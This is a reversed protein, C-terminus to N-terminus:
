VEDITVDASTAMQSSGMVHLFMSNETTYDGFSENKFYMVGDDERLYLNFTQGSGISIAGLLFDGDGSSPYSLGTQATSATVFFGGILSSADFQAETKPSGGGHWHGFWIARGRWDISGDVEHEVGDSYDSSILRYRKIVSVEIEGPPNADLYNNIITNINTTLSTISEDILTQLLNYGTFTGSLRRLYEHLGRLYQLMESADFVSRAVATPTEAPFTPVPLASIIRSLGGPSIEAM